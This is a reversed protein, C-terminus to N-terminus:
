PPAAELAEIRAMAEQLAKTLAAILTFPNPAQIEAPADKVGSAASPTLTEQLEHAIFGWQEIENSEFMPSTDIYRPAAEPNEEAEKRAKLTEEAIHKVHSPPSFEAQTFKIPRLAKVTDWMGPLDIVDKKIRYDSTFSLHGFNTTNIWMDIGTGGSGPYSINFVGSTVAGNMGNRTQYGIVSTVSVGFNAEGGNLLLRTATGGVDQFYHSGNRFYTTPDNTNGIVVGSGTSSNVITYNPSRSAFSQGNLLYGTSTDVTGSFLAAGSSRKINFPSSLYAGADNYAYLAFDNGANSGSETVADGLRLAWRMAGGRQGEVIAALGAATSNLTLKCHDGVTSTYLNGAFNVYSNARNVTMAASRFSGDDSFAYLAFNNGTHGGTEASGDVIRMQWRSVGGRQGELMGGYPGTNNVIFRSHDTAGANISLNGTMADGTVNVYRLDNDIATGAALRWPQWAGAVKQRVWHAGTIGGGYAWADLTIHNANLITAIGSVISDPRGTATADSWFSGAEFVHTDYNTVQVGRVEASLNARAGMADSAGTGGAVIPRPSNLDQEVDATNGNFVASEVTTGEVVDPFPHRYISAGDRPM